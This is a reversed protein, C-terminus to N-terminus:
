WWEKDLEIDFGKDMLGWLHKIKVIKLTKRDKNKIDNYRVDKPLNDILQKKAEETKHDCDIDQLVFLKVIKHDENNNRTLKYRYRVVKEM